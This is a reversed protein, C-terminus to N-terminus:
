KEIMIETILTNNQNCGCLKYNSDFQESQGREM